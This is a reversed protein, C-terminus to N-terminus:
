TSSKFLYTELPYIRIALLYVFIQAIDTIMLCLCILLIIFYIGVSTLVAIILIVLYWLHEHPHPPFPVRTYQQHSDLNTGCGYFVSHPTGWFILFLVAVHGRMEVEPYKALPFVFDQCTIHVERNVAANYVIAFVHFCAWHESMPLAYFSNPVYM